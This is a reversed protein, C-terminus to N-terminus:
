MRAHRVDTYVRVWTYQECKDSIQRVMPLGM